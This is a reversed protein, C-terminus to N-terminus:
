VLKALSQKLDHLGKDLLKEQGQFFKKIRKDDALRCFMRVKRLEVETMVIAKNVYGEDMLNRKTDGSLNLAM